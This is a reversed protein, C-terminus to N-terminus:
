STTRADARLFPRCGWRRPSRPRPRARLGRRVVHKGSELAAVVSAYVDDDLQLLHPPAEAVHKVFAADFTGSTGDQAGLRLLERYVDETVENISHQANWRPPQYEDLAVPRTFPQYDSLMAGYAVRGNRETEEVREIVGHGFFTRRTEPSAGRGPRYYVFRGGNRRASAASGQLTGTSYM